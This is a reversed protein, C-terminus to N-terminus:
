YLTTSFVHQSPTGSHSAGRNKLVSLSPWFFPQGHMDDLEKANWRSVDDIEEDNTTKIFQKM